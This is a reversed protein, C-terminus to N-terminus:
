ELIKKLKKERKDSEKNIKRASSILEKAQSMTPHKASTRPLKNGFDHYLNDNLYIQCNEWNYGREDPKQFYEVRWFDEKSQFIFSSKVHNM